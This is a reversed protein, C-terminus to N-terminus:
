TKQANTMELYRILGKSLNEDEISFVEKLLELMEPIRDADRM